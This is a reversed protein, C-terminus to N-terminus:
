KSIQKFISVSCDTQVPVNTFGEAGRVKITSLMRRRAIRQEETMTMAIDYDSHRQIIHGGEVCGPHMQKGMDNAKIGEDNYQCICLAAINAKKAIEKVCKIGDGIIEYKQKHPAYKSQPKSTLLGLYDIIWLKARSNLRFFRLRKKEMTEVNLDNTSIFIKGYKDSEFLDMKAAEYFRQQQEDLEHKNMISDPIKVKGGYIRIIHHAILINEVQSKTLELEDFLVDHKYVVAAQYAFQIAAFRTKGSGPPGTFTICQSTYVGGLDGDICPMGTKFLFTMDDKKYAGDGKRTYFDLDALSENNFEEEMRDFVTYIENVIASIEEGNVVRPYKEAFVQLLIERKRTSMFTKMDVKFERGTLDLEAYQEYRLLTAASISQYAEELAGPEKYDLAQLSEIRIDEKQIIEKGETRLFDKLYEEKVTIGLDACYELFIYLLKDIESFSSKSFKEVFWSLRAATEESDLMFWKFISNM